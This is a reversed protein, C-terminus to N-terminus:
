SNVLMMEESCITRKFNLFISKRNEKDERALNLPNRDTKSPM